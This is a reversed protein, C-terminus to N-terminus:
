RRSLRLRVSPFYALISGVRAMAMIQKKGENESSFDEVRPPSREEAKNTGKGEETSNKGNRIKKERFHGQTPHCTQRRGNKCKPRIKDSFLPV